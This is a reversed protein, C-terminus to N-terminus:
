LSNENFKDVRLRKNSVPLSEHLEKFKADDNIKKKENQVQQHRCSSRSIQKGLSRSIHPRQPFMVCMVFGCFVVNRLM